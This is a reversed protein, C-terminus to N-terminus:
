QTMSSFSLRFIIKNSHINLSFFDAGLQGRGGLLILSKSKFYQIRISFALFVFEPLLGYELYRSLM